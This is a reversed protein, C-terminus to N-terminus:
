IARGCIAGISKAINDVQEKGSEIANWDIHTFYKVWDHATYGVDLLDQNGYKERLEQKITEDLKIGAEKLTAEIGGNFDFVSNERSLLIDWAPSYPLPVLESAELTVISRGFDRAIREIFGITNELSQPTEGLSGLPFSAHITMGAEALRRVAEYNIQSPSFVKGKDVNNKRLFKLMNDDGSDLGLNIRTANLKKLWSVADPVNVVDNARAYVEFEIDRQKPNFPMTKILQKVYKQFTLFSDCVEFFFNIGYRENYGEVTEWFFKPNGANLSLDYISCYTCRKEGNGCGRVNNVVVPTRESEHLHGYKENYSAKAVVIDDAILELNPIDRSDQYVQPLLLKSFAVKQIGTSTRFYVEDEGRKITQHQVRGDTEKGVIYSLPIEGIEAKVVYDVYPRNQLILEPFFSAHDNGLVVTCGYREKAYRALELGESYTPTLVSIGIISPRVEDIKRKIYDTTRVGGDVVRVELAPYDKQLRTGLSVVGIAPFAAYNGSTNSDQRNPANILMIKSTEM